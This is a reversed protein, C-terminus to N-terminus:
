RSPLSPHILRKKKENREKQVHLYRSHSVNKLRFLQAHFQIPEEQSIMKRCVREGLGDIIYGM